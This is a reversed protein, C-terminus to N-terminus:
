IKQKLNTGTQDLNNTILVQQVGAELAKFAAKLKPMMGATIEKQKLLASAGSFDLKKIVRGRKLVGPVDTLLFLKKAKLASAITAAATDANVNLLNGDITQAMPAMVVIQSTLMQNLRAVNVSNITGVQGYLSRNVYKGTLLQNDYTNVGLVPLGNEAIKQCIQPQVIGLLVAEAIRLTERSTIRIGDQKRPEFGILKTWASIQPGGGHIILIQYGSQHWKCLQDFFKRDLQQAANGGIKIVITENM